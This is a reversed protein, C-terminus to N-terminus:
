PLARPTKNATRLREIEDAAAIMAEAYDTLFGQFADRPWSAKNGNAFEARWRDWNTMISGDWDTMDNALSRLRTVIDSM